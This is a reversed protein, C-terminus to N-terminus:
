RCSLASAGNWQISRLADSRAAQEASKRAPTPAKFIGSTNETMEKFYSRIEDCSGRYVCREAAPGYVGVGAAGVPEVGQSWGHLRATPDAQPPLPLFPRLTHLVAIATPVLVTALLAVRARKTLRAPSCAAAVVVIIAGPAWWNAEPPAGRALASMSVLVTILGLVARDASPMSRVARLGRALVWPSWLLAQVLVAEALASLSSLPRFAGAGDGYAHALQFRLSPLFLPAALALPVLLLLRLAVPKERAALAVVVAIPLVVVKALAGALLALAAAVTSAIRTRSDARGNPNSSSGAWLLAAAVGLISPGDPTAVFGATMPLLAFTGLWAALVCGDRDAGRQRALAVCALGLALSIGIPWLRVRLELPLASLKDSLQLLWPLLPPHDVLPPLVGAGEIRAACLYYAEDPSLDTATALLVHLPLAAAVIWCARRPSPAPLV